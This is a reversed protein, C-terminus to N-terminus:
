RHSNIENELLQIRSMMEDFTPQFGYIMIRMQEYDRKLSQLIHTPAMLRITGPQALDYRAWGRPYFREKSEVVSKLLDSDKLATAKVASNAICSLDYYHRSYRTPQPNDAPRHAEHHLITVKEWFTREAKISKIRCTPESFLSPFEEACYPSISFEANPVWIALPGIELRIEPRIYPTSFAASYKVAIVNPDDGAIDTSVIGGLLTRIKPQFDDRLYQQAAAQLQKNFQDQKSRSRKAEPDENTVERWDLILDIDESFREILKFVKSLSTGGKFLVKQSVTDDAFIKGLAWCVWFDKEVVAESMNRRAATERFVEARQERPLTAIREM